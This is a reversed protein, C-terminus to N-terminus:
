DVKRQNVSENMKKVGQRLHETSKSLVQEDDKMSKSLEALGVLQRCVKRVLRELDQIHTLGSADSVHQAAQSEHDQRGAKGGNAIQRLPAHTPSKQM